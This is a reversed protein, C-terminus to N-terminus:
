SKLPSSHAIIVIKAASRSDLSLSNGWVQDDVVHFMMM